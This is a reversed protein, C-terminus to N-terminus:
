KVIMKKTIQEDNINVNYFYVGTELNSADITIQTTGANVTGKNISIVRQGVINVVDLSLEATENLEVSVTTTTAVPNPFNQSVKNESTFGIVNENAVHLYNFDTKDIASVIVDNDVPDHDPDTPGVALGVNNDKQYAIFIQEEEDFYNNIIQPWICEDFMHLADGTIDFGEGWNEGDFSKAYVHRYHMTGDTLDERPVTYTLVMYDTNKDIALAPMCSMGISTHYTKLNDMSEINITGDGDIDPTEAVYCEEPIYDYNLAYHQNENEFVPMTENWYIIGDTFPFFNYSDGAENHIYRGLGFAVHVNNESDIVASTSGDPGWITDTTITTEWDWMPYPNEWIVTKNWNEGNDSSKMLFLDHWKSAVVIAVTNGRTTMIYDDGGIFTYDEAGMGDLVGQYDWSQGGDTSRSYIMTKTQGEYDDYSNAIVHLIDNNDGSTAIRPWTLDEAGAPGPLVGYTWDGTGKNERTSLKLGEAPGHAVVIEGNAGFPAYSPWGVREDEIRETPVAGWSSGDFYNYGTGRNPYSNADDLGMTWTFAMTGDEYYYSRNAITSNTQLDYRTQGIVSENIDLVSNVSKSGFSENSLEETGDFTKYTAKVSTNQLEQSIHARQSFGVVGVSLALGLLVSKKM